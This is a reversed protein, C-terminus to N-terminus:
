VKSAYAQWGVAIVGALLVAPMLVVPGGHLIFLQAIVAGLMTCALLAAGAVAPRPILLLLGGGVQILGTLYRLWQGVGIRDFIVVWGSTAGFKTTGVYIFFLAVGARCLWPIFVDLRHREPEALLKLDSM